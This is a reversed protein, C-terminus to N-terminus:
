GQGGMGQGVGNGIGSADSRTSSSASAGGQWSRESGLQADSRLLRVCDAKAGPDSMQACQSSVSSGLPDDKKDQASAECSLEIGFAVTLISLFVKTTNAMGWRPQRIRLDLRTGLGPMEAAATSLRLLEPQLSHGIAFCGSIVVELLM